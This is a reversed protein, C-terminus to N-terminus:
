FKTCGGPIYTTEIDLEKLVANTRESKHTAFADWVLLRKGTFLKGGIVQRLYDETTADNMWISGAWNIILKGKFKQVILPQPCKWHVLVYPLFKRGDSRATLCVTVRM